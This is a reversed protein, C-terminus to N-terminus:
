VVGFVVIRYFAWAIQANRGEHARGIAVIQGFDIDPQDTSGSRLTVVGSGPFRSGVSGAFTTDVIGSELVRYLVPQERVAGGVSELLAGGIVIRNQADVAIAEPRGPLPVGAFLGLGYAIGGGAFGPDPAGTM